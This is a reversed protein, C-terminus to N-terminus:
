ADKLRKELDELVETTDMWCVTHLGELDAYRQFEAEHGKEVLLIFYRNLRNKIMVARLGFGALRNNLSPTAYFGWSKRALDYEAGSDAVFTVQEDPALEIHGCDKMQITEGFGVEFIRPPKIETIKM